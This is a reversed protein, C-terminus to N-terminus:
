PLPFQSTFSVVEQKINSLESDNDKAILSCNIFNAIKIM